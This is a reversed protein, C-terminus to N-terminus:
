IYRRVYATVSTNTDDGGAGVLVYYVVKEIEFRLNDLTDKDLNTRVVLDINYKRRIAVGVGGQKRKTKM